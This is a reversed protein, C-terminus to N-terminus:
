IGRREIAPPKDVKPKPPSPVVEDVSEICNLIFEMDKDELFSEVIMMPLDAASIHIYVASTHEPVLGREILLLLYDNGIKFPSM